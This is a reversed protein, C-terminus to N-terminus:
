VQVLDASHLCRCEACSGVFLFHLRFTLFHTYCYHNWLCSTQGSFHTLPSLSPYLFLYFLFEMTLKFKLVEAGISESLAPIAVSLVSSFLVLDRLWSMTCCASRPCISDAFVSLSCIPSLPLFSLFSLVSRRQNFLVPTFCCKLGVQPVKLFVTCTKLFHLFLYSATNMDSLLTQWGASFIFAFWERKQLFFGVHPTKLWHAM